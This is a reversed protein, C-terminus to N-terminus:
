GCLVKSSGVVIACRTGADTGNPALTAPTTGAAIPAWSYPAVDDTSVYLLGAADHALRVVLDGVRGVAPGGGELETRGVASRLQLAKTPSLGCRALWPFLAIVTSRIHRLPSPSSWVRLHIEADRETVDLRLISQGQVTAGPLWAAVSGHVVVDRVGLAMDRDVIVGQADAPPLAPWADFRTRGTPPMRWTALIKRSVLDDLVHRVRVPREVSSDWGYITGVTTETPADYPEGAVRALDALVTSLRVGSASAYSAGPAPLLRKWGAGGEVVVMARNPADLYSDTVTGPLALDGITLTARGTAAPAGTQLHATAYWGGATPVHLHLDSLNRGDLNSM